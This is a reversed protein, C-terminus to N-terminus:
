FAASPIAKTISAIVGHITVQYRTSSGARCRRNVTMMLGMRNMLATSVLLLLMTRLFRVLSMTKSLKKVRANHTADDIIDKFGGLIVNMGLARIMNARAPFLPDSGGFQADHGLTGRILATNVGANLAQTLVGSIETDAYEKASQEGYGIYDRAYGYYNMWAARIDWVVPFFTDGDITYEYDNGHTESMNRAFSSVPFLFSLALLASLTLRQRKYINL